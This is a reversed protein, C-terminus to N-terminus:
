STFSPSDKEIVRKALQLQAFEELFAVIQAKSMQQCRALYEQTFYQVPRPQSLRIPVDPIDPKHLM